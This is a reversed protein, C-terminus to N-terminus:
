NKTSAGKRRYVPNVPNVADLLLVDALTPELQFAEEYSLRVDGEDGLLITESIMTASYSRDQPRTLLREIVGASLKKVRVTFTDTVDQGDPGLHTWSVERTVPTSPVFGGLDRLQQLDM